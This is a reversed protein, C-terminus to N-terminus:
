YVKKWKHYYDLAKPARGKVLAMFGRVTASGGAKVEGTKAQSHICPGHYGTCLGSAREFATVLTYRRDKAETMIVHEASQLDQGRFGTTKRSSKFRPSGRFSIVNLNYGDVLPGLVVLNDKEDVIYTRKLGPDHFPEPPAVCPAYGVHNWDYKTMNRVEFVMDLREGTRNVRARSTNQISGNEETITWWGNKGKKYDPGGKRDWNFIPIKPATPDKISPSFAEPLRLDVSADGYPVLQIHLHFLGPTSVRLLPETTTAYRASDSTRCSTAVVLLM